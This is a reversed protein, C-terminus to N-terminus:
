PKCPGAGPLETAHKRALRLPRLLYYLPFLPRPLDVAWGEAKTPHFVRQLGCHISDRLTDRSQMLFRSRALAGAPVPAGEFLRKRVEATLAMVKGDAAIGNRIVEPVDARLLDTALFLGLRLARLTRWQLARGLLVDWDFNPHARLVSAVDCIWGLSEWIHKTGHMCLLVMLDEPGLTQISDGAMKVVVARSWIRSAEAPLAFFGPMLAWHLDILVGASENEYTMEFDFARAFRLSHARGPWGEESRPRFGREVLMDHVQAVDEERVLLDLDHFERLGINEYHTALIPGKYALLPICRAEFCRAIKVLEGTLFFNRRFVSQFRQELKSLIEAPAWGPDMSRTHWYLLPAVSNRCAQRFLLDWDLPQRSLIRIREAAAESRAPQICLLLLEIEPRLGVAPRDTSTNM